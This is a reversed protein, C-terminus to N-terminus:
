MKCQDFSPVTTQYFLTSTLLLTVLALTMTTSNPAGLNISLETRTQQSATYM